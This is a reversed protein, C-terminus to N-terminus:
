PSGARSQNAPTLSCNAPRLGDSIVECDAVSSAGETDVPIETIEILPQPQTNSAGTKTYAPDICLGHRRTSRWLWPPSNEALNFADLASLSSPNGGERKRGMAGGHGHM